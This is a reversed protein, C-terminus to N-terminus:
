SATILIRCRPSQYELSPLTFKKHCAPMVPHLPHSSSRVFLHDGARKTVEQFEEDTPIHTLTLCGNKGVVPNTDFFFSKPQGLQPGPITYSPPLPIPVPTCHRVGEPVGLTPDVNRLACTLSWGFFFQWTLPSVCCQALSASVHHIVIHQGYGHAAWLM